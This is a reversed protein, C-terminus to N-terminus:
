DSDDLFENLVVGREYGMHHVPEGNDLDNRFKFLIKIFKNTLKTACPSTPCLLTATRGADTLSDFNPSISRFKALFCNRKLQFTTCKNLFHDEDDIYGDLFNNENELPRCYRCYRQDPPVPPRSYRGTELALRSASIRLRTLDSRQARNPVLDLYPEKTFSGKLTSYNKLKNHYTGNKDLNGIKIKDLWFIEFKSKICKKIKMGIIEIKEYNSYKAGVLDKIKEVRNWWSDLNPGTELSMETVAKGILSNSGKIKNLHAHYKLLNCLGKILLPFRGLEGLVALRSSKKHVGLVM